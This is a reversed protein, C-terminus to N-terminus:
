QCSVLQKYYYEAVCSIDHGSVSRHSSYCFCEVTAIIAV